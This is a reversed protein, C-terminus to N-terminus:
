LKWQVFIKKGVDILHGPCKLAQDFVQSAVLFKGVTHKQHRSSTYNGITVERQFWVIYDVNRDVPNARQGVRNNLTLQGTM